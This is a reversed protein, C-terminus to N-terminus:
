SIGFVFLPTLSGFLPDMSKEKCTFIETLGPCTFSSHRFFVRPDHLTDGLVCGHISDLVARKRKSSLMTPSSFPGFLLSGVNTLSLTASGFLFFCEGSFSVQRIGPAQDPPLFNRRFPLDEPHVRFLLTYKGQLTQSFSVYRRRV